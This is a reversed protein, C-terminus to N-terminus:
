KKKVRCLEVLPVTLTLLGELELLGMFIWNIQLHSGRVAMFNFLDM